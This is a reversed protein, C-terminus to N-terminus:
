FVDPITFSCGEQVHMQMDDLWRWLQAVIDSSLPLLQICKTAREPLDSNSDQNSKKRSEM